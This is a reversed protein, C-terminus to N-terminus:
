RPQPAPVSFTYKRLEAVLEPWDARELCAAARTQHAPDDPEGAAWCLHWVHAALWDEPPPGAFWAHWHPGAPWSWTTQYQILGLALFVAQQKPTLPATRTAHAVLPDFLINLWRNQVRTAALKRAAAPDDGALHLAAYYEALLLALPRKLIATAQAEDTIGDLTSWDFGSALTPPPRSPAGPVVVVVVDDVDDDFDVVSHRNKDLRPNGMTRAHWFWLSSAFRAFVHHESRRFIGLPDGHCFLAGVELFGSHGHAVLRTMDLVLLDHVYERMTRRPHHSLAAISLAPTTAVFVELDAHSSIACHGRLDDDIMRGSWACLHWLNPVWVEPTEFVGCAAAVARPVIGEIPTSTSWSLFASRGARAHAWRGWPGVAGLDLLAALDDENLTRTAATPQFADTSIAVVGVLAEGGRRAIETEMWMRLFQGHARSFRLLDVVATRLQYWFASSVTLACEAVADLLAGRLEAELEVEERLVALLFTCTGYTPPEGALLERVVLSGLARDDSRSGLMLLLTERWQPEHHLETVFRAIAEHGQQGQERLAAQGALYEMLLLHVFAYRDNRQAQILGSEEILWRRWNGALERRRGEDLDPMHADILEALKRDLQGGSVVIDHPAGARSPRQSQMWLALEEILPRQRAGPFEVLVRGREAPWTVLLTEVFLECLKAREGPLEARHFHVLALLTALLPNRALEKTRPEVELAAWLDTRKRQREVPNNPEAVAYWRDIFERLQDDDFPELTLQDFSDGLRAQDYGVIRSTVIVPVRPYAAAFAHVRDRLVTRQGAGVEDVGDILLVARGAECLQEFAAVEARVELTAAIERQVQDLLRERGGDASWVRVPLLLPVIPAEGTAAQIALYRCLTSKGSGPDGLVVVRPAAEDPGYLRVWQPELEALSHASTQDRERRRFQLPVFMDRLGTAPKPATTPLGVFGQWGHVQVVARRLRAVLDDSAAASGSSVPRELRALKVELEVRGNRADRHVGSDLHWHGTRTTWTFADLELRGAAGDLQAVTFGHFRDQGLGAYTAGGGVEITGRAGHLVSGAEPSHVHGHLVVDFEDRLLSRIYREEEDRVWGIPHHLLAVRLQAGAQALEDVLQRVQRQGVVLGDRDNTGSMWVTCISAVGIVLGAVEVVDTRWPRDISVRRAPGLLKATFACWNALRKAYAGLEEASGIVEGIATRFEDEGLGDFSRAYRARTKSIAGRDVDHNGPVMFLRQKRDLGLSECLADFFRFAGDYESAAARNAVDGTVFVLQPSREVEALLGPLDRLLAALVEDQEWDNGSVHLDSLHLWCLPEVPAVLPELRDGLLLVPNLVSALDPAQKRLTVFASGSGALVVFVPGRDWVLDRGRNLALLTQVWADPDEDRAEVWVVPPEASAFAIEHIRGLVDRGPKCCRLAPALSELRRRVEDRVEGSDAAVFALGRAPSLKLAARLHRWEQEGKNGLSFSRRENM